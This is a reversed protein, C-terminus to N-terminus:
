FMVTWPFIHPKPAAEEKGESRLHRAERGQTIRTPLCAAKPGTDGRAALLVMPDRQLPAARLELTVDTQHRAGLVPM